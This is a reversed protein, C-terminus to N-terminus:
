QLIEENEELWIAWANLKKLQNERNKNEKLIEFYTKGLENLKIEVLKNLVKVFDDKGNSNNETIEINDLLEIISTQNKNMNYKMGMKGLM